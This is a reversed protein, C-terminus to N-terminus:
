LGFYRKFDKMYKRSIYDSLGNKLKLNVMGNFFPEIYDVESLNVVTSKSIQMFGAGLIESIEYLRKKCLYRRSESYIALSNNEVRAMFIEDPKLMFIKEELMVPVANEQISILTAAKQIEDTLASTYIIAYPEIIDEKIKIEVKLSNEGKSCINVYLTENTLLFDTLPLFYANFHLFDDSLAIKYIFKLL